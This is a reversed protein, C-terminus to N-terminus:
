VQRQRIRRAVSGAQVVADDMIARWFSFAFMLCSRLLGDSTVTSVLSPLLRDWSRQLCFRRPRASAVQRPKQHTDVDEGEVVGTNVMRWGEGSDYLMGLRTEGWTCAHTLPLICCLVVMGGGSVSASTGLQHVHELRTPQRRRPGLEKSSTSSLCPQDSAGNRGRGQRAFAWPGLRRSRRQIPVSM